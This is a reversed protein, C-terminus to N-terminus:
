GPMKRCFRICTLQRSYAAYENTAKRSCHKVKICFVVVLMNLYTMLGLFVPESIVYVLVKVSCSAIM